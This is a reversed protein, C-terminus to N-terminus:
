VVLWIVVAGSLALRYYAFVDLSHHALYRIFYKVALYGVVGAVVAGVVFLGADISAGSESVDCATRVAAILVAPISMLFTFRAGAERRFGFLMAITITTGSRSFGPVLAAAQGCGIAFAEGATITDRDRDGRRVREAIMMGIAGAALTIACVVPTRLRAEIVDAALLGFVVIPVTGVGILRVLRGYRGGGGSLAAPSAVLMPWVDRRFYWLVAALTGIHVAVDFPLGFVDSNWGFFARALILHASSSIPLFETLGQM